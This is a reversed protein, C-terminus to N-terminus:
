LLAWFLEHTSLFNGMPEPAKPLSNLNLLDVCSLRVCSLLLPCVTGQPEATKKHKRCGENLLVIIQLAVFCLGTQNMFLGELEHNPKHNPEHSSWLGHRSDCKGLKYGHRTTVAAKKNYKKEKRHKLRGVEIKFESQIGALSGVM